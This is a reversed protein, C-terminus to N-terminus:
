KNDGCSYGINRAKLVAAKRMDKAAIAAEIEENGDKGHKTIRVQWREPGQQLYEWAFIDGREALLEYYLPKPDHDNDIIFGEGAALEDFHRFITPHKLRPEIRTVDLVAATVM